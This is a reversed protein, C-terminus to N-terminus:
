EKEGVMESLFRDIDEIFEEYASAWSVPQAKHNWDNSIIGNCERKLKEAFEKIAEARSKRILIVKAEEYLEHYKEEAGKCIISINEERDKLKEIEAKQRNILDATDTVLLLACQTDKYPCDDCLYNENMTNRCCELAKIIEDDKM